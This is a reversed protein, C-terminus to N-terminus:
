QQDKRCGGPIGSEVRLGVAAERVRAVAAHTRYVRTFTLGALADQVIEVIRGAGALCETPPRIEPAAPFRDFTRWILPRILAPPVRPQQPNPLVACIATLGEHRTTM